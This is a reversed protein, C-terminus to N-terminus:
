TRAMLKYASDILLSLNTEILHALQACIVPLVHSGPKPDPIIPPSDDFSRSPIKKKSVFALEGKALPYFTRLIAGHNEGHKKM